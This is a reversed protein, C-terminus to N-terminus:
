DDTGLGHKNMLRHMSQRSMGAARAAESINGRALTLRRTLYEREFADVQAEKAAHFELEHANELTTALAGPQAVGLADSVSLGPLTIIREVVNRLERVNGPWDHQALIRLLTAPLEQASSGAIRRSLESVLRPIEELRDRLPPLTVTIVSLRYYLDLRFRNARAEAALNRNTSAIVRVDLHRDVTDGLRRVSRSELVRLLKPQLDLPLEGIEDLVVTGKDAQEFIGPRSETAGTFAGRAHGFLASEILTASVAGCDFVVFPQASRLGAEHVGRAALEKGTGSEGNILLTSDTKAAQELVAFAARMKPSHGLLPGFNTRTSLPVSVDEEDAVLILQTNGVRVHSGAKMFAREIRVGDLYTGNTSGLDRLTVGRPELAVECHRASVSPDDLRLENNEGSGVRTPSAGLEVSANTNEQTLRLKRHTWVEGRERQLIQTVLTDTKSSGAAM